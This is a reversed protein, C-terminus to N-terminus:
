GIYAAVKGALEQVSVNAKVLYDIAHLEKMRGMERDDSLNSLVAVRIDKLHEDARMETLTDFGDKIPMIIDLLVVDPREERMMRLAEEGNKALRVSYGETTLKKEYIASIFEDDEVVLVNGKTSAM